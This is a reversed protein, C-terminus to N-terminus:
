FYPFSLQAEAITEGLRERPGLVDLLLEGVGRHHAIARAQRLESALVATESGNPLQRRFERFGLVLERLRALENENVVGIEGALRPELLM